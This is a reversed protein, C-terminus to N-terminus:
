SRSGSPLAAANDSRGAGVFAGLVGALLVAMGLVLYAKPFGAASALRGFLSPGFVTGMYTFM